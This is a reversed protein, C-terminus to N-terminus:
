SRPADAYAKKAPGWYMKEIESVSLDFDRAINRCILDPNGEDIENMAKEAAELKQQKNMSKTQHGTATNRNAIYCYLM